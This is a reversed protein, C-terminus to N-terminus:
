TSTATRSVLLPPAPWTRPPRAPASPWPGGGLDTYAETIAAAVADPLAAQEFAARIMAGDDGALGKTIVPDLGAQEVACQYAVTSVLFGDPVPFGAAILEGLNAGKGGALDLDDRRVTSIPAVLQRDPGALTDLM